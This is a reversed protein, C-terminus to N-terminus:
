ELSHFHYRSHKPSIPYGLGTWWFSLKLDPHSSTRSQVPARYGSDPDEDEEKASPLQKESWRWELHRRLGKGASTGSAWLADSGPGELVM